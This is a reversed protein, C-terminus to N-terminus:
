ALHTGDSLPMRLKFSSVKGTSSCDRRAKRRIRWNSEIVTLGFWVGQM